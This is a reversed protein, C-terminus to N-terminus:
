RQCLKVFKVGLSHFLRFSAGFLVVSLFITRRETKILERYIKAMAESCEPIREVGITRSYEALLEMQRRLIKKNSSEKIKESMEQQSQQKMILDRLERLADTYAKEDM